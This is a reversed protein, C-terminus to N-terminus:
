SGCGNSTTCNPREDPCDADTTCRVTCTSSNGDCVGDTVEPIGCNGPNASCAKGIDAHAACSSQAYFCFDTTVGDISTASQSQSRAGQYSCTDEPDADRRRTCVWEGLTSFMPWYVDAVCSAGAVCQADMQCPACLETRGAPLDTCRGADVDCLLPVGDEDTGCASADEETCAICEGDECLGLGDLHACQAQEFCPQCAGDACRSATPDTCDADALCAVCVEAAADCHPRDSPCGSPSSATCEV